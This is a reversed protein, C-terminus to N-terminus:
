KLAKGMRWIKVSNKFNNVIITMDSEPFYYADHLNIDSKTKSFAGLEEVFQGENWPTGIIVNEMVWKQARNRRDVQSKNEGSGSLSVNAVGLIEEKIEKAEKPGETAGWRPYFTVEVLYEGAPLNESEGDLTIKQEADILKIKKSSGIYTDTPKQNKISISAMVEVPLPINTKILMDVSYPSATAASVTIKYEIPQVQALPEVVDSKGDEKSSLLAGLIVAVLVAATMLFFKKM